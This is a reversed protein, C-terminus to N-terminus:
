MGLEVREASARCPVPLLHPNKGTHIYNKTSARKTMKKSHTFINAGLPSRFQLATTEQPALDCAATHFSWALNKIFDLPPATHLAWGGASTKESRTLFSPVTPGNVGFARRWNFIEAWDQKTRKNGGGCDRCSPSVAEQSTQIELLHKKMRTPQSFLNSLLTKTLDTAPRQLRLSKIYVNRPHETILRKSTFLYLPFFPQLNLSYNILFSFETTM